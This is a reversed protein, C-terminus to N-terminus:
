YAPQLITVSGEEVIESDSFQAKYDYKDASLDTIEVQLYKDKWADHVYKEGEFFRLQYTCNDVWVIAFRSFDGTAKNTETQLNLEREITIHTTENKVEFYGTQLITCDMKPTRNCGVSFLIIGLFFTTLKVIKLM